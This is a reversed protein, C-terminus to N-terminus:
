RREPELHPTSHTLQVRSGELRSISFTSREGLASPKEVNDFARVNMTLATSHGQEGKRM